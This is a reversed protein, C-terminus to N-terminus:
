VPAADNKIFSLKVHRDVNRLFRLDHGIKLTGCAVRTRGFDLHGQQGCADVVEGTVEFLVYLIVMGAATQQAHHAATALQQVVELARVDIAIARQNLAEAQALLGAWRDAVRVPIRVVRISSLPWDRAPQAATTAKAMPADNFQTGSDHARARWVM